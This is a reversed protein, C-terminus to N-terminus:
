GARRTACAKRGRSAFGFLTTLIGNSVGPDAGVVRGVVEVPLDDFAGGSVGGFPALVAAAFGGGVVGCLVCCDTSVVGCHPAVSAVAVM